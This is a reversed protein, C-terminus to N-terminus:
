YKQALMILSWIAKLLREIPTVPFINTGLWSFRALINPLTRLVNGTLQAKLLGPQTHSLLTLVTSVARAELIGLTQRHTHTHQGQLDDAHAKLQLTFHPSNQISRCIFCPYPHEWITQSMSLPVYHQISQSVCFCWSACMSQHSLQRCMVMQIFYVAWFRTCPKHIAISGSLLMDCLLYININLHSPIVTYHLNHSGWPVLAMAETFVKM